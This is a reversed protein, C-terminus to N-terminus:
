VHIKIAHKVSCQTRTCDRFIWCLLIVLSYFRYQELESWHEGPVMSTRFFYKPCYPNWEQVAGDSLMFSFNSVRYITNDTYWVKLTTGRKTGRNQLHDVTKASKYPWLWIKVLEKVPKIHISQSEQLGRKRIKQFNACFCRMKHGNWSRDTTLVRTIYKINMGRQRGVM